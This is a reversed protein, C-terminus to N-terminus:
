ESLHEARSVAFALCAGVVAVQLGSQVLTPVVVVAAPLLGVLLATSNQLLTVLVATMVQQVPAYLGLGLGFHIAVTLVIGAGRSRAAASAALGVAGSYFASFYPELLWWAVALPLGILATLQLAALDFASLSLALSNWMALLQDFTQGSAALALGGTVLGCLLALGRLAAVFHLPWALTYLLAAFKGGVIELSTLTTLRLFPWSQCERERSILTAGLLGALLSNLGGALASVAVLGFTFSGGIVAIAEAPNTYNAQTGALLTCLAPFVLFLLSGGWLVSLTARWVRSRRWHRTEGNVIPHRPHIWAPLALSAM